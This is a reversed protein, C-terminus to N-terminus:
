TSHEHDFCVARVLSQDVGKLNNADAMLGMPTSRDTFLMFIDHMPLPVCMCAQEELAHAICSKMGRAM